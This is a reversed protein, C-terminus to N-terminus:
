KSRAKTAKLIEMGIKFIEESFMKTAKNEEATHWSRKRTTQNEDGIEKTIGVAVETGEYPVFNTINLMLFKDANAQLWRHTCGYTDWTEGPLGIIINPIINVDFQWKLLHLANDITKTTQPKRYKQLISDNYSEVGIEVNVIHLDKLSINDFAWNCVQTCTTQVTFGRFKPNFEKITTYLGELTYYNRCQGFTKDNLYVLEFDLCEMSYIQNVINLPSTQIIEDPVTCFRCKNTCGNSLTLRPICKMGKFLSYYTGPRYDLDLIGCAAEISDCWVVNYFGKFLRYFEEYGIYGGLYFTKNPNAFIIKALIAKNCDMVSAFFVDAGPLLLSHAQTIHFLELEHDRSDFCNSLEAIWTPIEWYHLPKVYGERDMNNWIEKFYVDAPNTPDNPNLLTDSVQLFCYRMRNM